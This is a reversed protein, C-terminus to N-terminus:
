THLYLLLRKTRKWFQPKLKLLSSDSQVYGGVMLGQDMDVIDRKITTYMVITKIRTSTVIKNSRQFLTRREGISMRSVDDSLTSAIAVWLWAMLYSSQNANCKLKLSKSLGILLLAKAVSCIEMFFVLSDPNYHLKLSSNYGPNSMQRLYFWLFFQGGLTDKIHRIGHCHAVKM